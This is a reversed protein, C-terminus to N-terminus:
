SEALMGGLLRKLYKKDGEISTDKANALLM